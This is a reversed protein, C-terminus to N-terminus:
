CCILVTRHSNLAWTQRQASFAPCIQPIIRAQTKSLDTQTTDRHAPEPTGGGVAAGASSRGGPLYVLLCVFASRRAYPNASHSTSSNPHFDSPQLLINPSSLACSIIHLHPSISPFPYFISVMIWCSCQGRSATIFFLHHM